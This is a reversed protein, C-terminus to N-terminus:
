IVIIFIFYIVTQAFMNFIIFDFSLLSDSTLQIKNYFQYQGFQFIIKLVDHPVCIQMGYSFM